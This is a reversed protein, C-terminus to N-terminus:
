LFKRVRERREEPVDELTYSGDLIGNATEQDSICDACMQLGSEGKGTDRTHKGCEACVIIGHQFNSKYSRNKM